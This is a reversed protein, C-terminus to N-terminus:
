TWLCTIIFTDKLSKKIVCHCFHHSLRFILRLLIWLYFSRGFLSTPWFYIFDIEININVCWTYVIRIQCDKEYINDWNINKNKGPSLFHFITIYFEWLFHFYKTSIHAHTKEKDNGISRSWSFLCKVEVFTSYPFNKRWPM